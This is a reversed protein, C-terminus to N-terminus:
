FLDEENYLSETGVEDLLQAKLDYLKQSLDVYVEHPNVLRKSEEWLTDMEKRCYAQLEMVSPSKYVTKGNLFIPKLLERM